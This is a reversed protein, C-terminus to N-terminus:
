LRPPPRSPVLRDRYIGRILAAANLTGKWGGAARHFSAAKGASPARFITVLVEEGEPLDLAELPEIVGSRIRARVADGTSTKPRARSDMSNMIGKQLLETLKV